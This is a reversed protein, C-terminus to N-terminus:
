NEMNIVCDAKCLEKYGDLLVAGTDSSIANSKLLSLIASTSNDYCVESCKDVTIMPTYKFPKSIEVAAFFGLCTLLGLTYVYIMPLYKHIKEIM